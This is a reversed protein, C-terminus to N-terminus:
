TLAGWLAAGLAIIIVGAFVLGGGLYVNLLRHRNLDEWTPQEIIRRAPQHIGDSAFKPVRVNM